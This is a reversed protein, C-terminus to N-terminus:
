FGDLTPEFGVSPVWPGVRRARAFDRVHRLTDTKEWFEQHSMKDPVARPTKVGARLGSRITAHVSEISDDDVLGNQRAAGTLADVVTDQGLGAGAIYHGLKLAAINLADNRGGQEAAAVKKAEGALASDLYKQQREDLPTGDEWQPAPDFQFEARDRDKASERIHSALQDAVWDAFREAGEPDGDNLCQGRQGGWV